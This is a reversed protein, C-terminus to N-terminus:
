NEKQKPIYGRSMLEKKLAERRSKVDVANGNRIVQNGDTPSGYEIGAEKLNKFYSEEIAVAIDSAKENGEVSVDRLTQKLIYNNIGVDSMNFKDKVINVASSVLSEKNRANAESKRQEEIENYRLELEAIKQRLEDGKETENNEEIKVKNLPKYSKKYEEVQKSVDYHLNGDLSKLFSVKRDLLEDSVQADDTIGSLVEDAFDNMTKESLSLKTSGLKENIKSLLEEREM